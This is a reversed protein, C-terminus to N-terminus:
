GNPTTKPIFILSSDKLFDLSDIPNVLSRKLSDTLTSLFLPSRRLLKLSAPTVGDPGPARLWALRALAADVEDRSIPTFDPIVTPSPDVLPVHSFPDSVTEYQEIPSLSPSLPLPLIFSILKRYVHSM